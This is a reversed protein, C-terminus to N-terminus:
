GAGRSRRQAEADAHARQEWDAEGPDVPARREGHDPPPAQPASGLHAEDHRSPDRPRTSWGLGRLEDPLTPSVEGEGGSGALPMPERGARERLTNVLEEARKWSLPVHGAHDDSSVASGALARYLDSCLEADTWRDGLTALDGTLRRELAEPDAM